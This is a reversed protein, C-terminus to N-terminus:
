HAVFVSFLLLLRSCEVVIRASALRTAPDAIVAGALTLPLMIATIFLTQIRNVVWRLPVTWMFSTQGLEFLEVGVVKVVSTESTAAANYVALRVAGDGTGSVFPIEVVQRPPPQGDKM